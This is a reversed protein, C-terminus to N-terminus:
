AVLDPVEDRIIGTVVSPPPPRACGPSFGVAGSGFFYTRFRGSAAWGVRDELPAAGPADLGSLLAFPNISEGLSGGTTVGVAAAPPAYGAAPSRLLAGCAVCLDGLPRSAGQLALWLVSCRPCKVEVAAVVAQPFRGTASVITGGRPARLVCSIHPDGDVGDGDEDSSEPSSVPSVVASTGVSM